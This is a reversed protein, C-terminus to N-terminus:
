RQFSRLGRILASSLSPIFADNDTSAEKFEETRSM